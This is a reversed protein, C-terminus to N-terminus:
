AGSGLRRDGDGAWHGVAGEGEGEIFGFDDLGMQDVGM